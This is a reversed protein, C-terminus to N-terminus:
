RLLDVPTVKLLTLSWEPPHTSTHLILPSVNLFASNFWKAGLGFDDLIRRGHITEDCFCISGTQQRALPGKRALLKCLLGSRPVMGCTFRCAIVLPRLTLPQWCWCAGMCLNCHIRSLTQEVENIDENLNSLIESM